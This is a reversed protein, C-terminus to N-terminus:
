MPYVMLIQHDSVQFFSSTTSFVLSARHIQMSPRNQRLRNISFCEATDHTNHGHLHCFKKSPQSTAKDTSTDHLPLSSRHGDSVAPMASTELGQELKAFMEAQKALTMAEHLNHCGRQLIYPQYKPQLGRM